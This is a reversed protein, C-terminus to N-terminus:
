CAAQGAQALYDYASLAHVKVVTMFENVTVHEDPKGMSIPSPGYVVAPVNRMRWLRADTRGPSVVKAPRIGTIREANERVYDYMEADPQCWSAEDRGLLQCSAEPYRGIIAALKSRVDESSLGIPIRLDLEVECSSALMGVALGGRVKGINVTVSRSTQFAGSGYARDVTEMADHLMSKLWAPEPVALRALQMSEAAIALGIAIASRSAHVYGGDGGPAAVKVKLWLRGKEGFAMTMLGSPEGILCCDGQVEDPHHKMLYAAGREGMIKEDSVVALTLRGRLHEKLRNLYTYAFIAATTGCKMDVAGRGYIRGDALEGGWPDHNWQRKTGVPFVDMHGNLVLHRGAEPFAATALINPMKPHATVVKFPLGRAELFAQVFRAAGTTDGPPNASKCRLFDRLFSILVDRDQEIWDLLQQKLDNM